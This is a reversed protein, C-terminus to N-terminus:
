GSDSLNKGEKSKIKRNTLLGGHVGGTKEQATSELARTKSTERRAEMTPQQDRM